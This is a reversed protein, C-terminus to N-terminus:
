IIQAKLREIKIDFSFIKLVITRKFIGKSIILLKYRSLLVIIKTLSILKQDEKLYDTGIM